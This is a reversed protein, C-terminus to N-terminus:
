NKWLRTEEQGIWVLIKAALGRGKWDMKWTFLLQINESAGKRNSWEEAKFGGIDWIELKATGAEGGPGWRGLWSWEAVASEQAPHALEISKIKREWMRGTIGLVGPSEVWILELNYPLSMSELHTFYLVVLLTPSSEERNRGGFLPFLPQYLAM